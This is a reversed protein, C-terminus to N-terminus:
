LPVALAQETRHPAHIAEPGSMDLRTNDHVVMCPKSLGAPHKCFAAKAGPEPLETLPPWPPMLGAPGPLSVGAAPLFDAVVPPARNPPLAASTDCCPFRPRRSAIM